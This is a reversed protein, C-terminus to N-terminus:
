FLLIDASTVSAKGQLDALLTLKGAAAGNADFWLTRDTTRFIFHDDADQARNDARVRFESAPLRGEDLGAGFGSADIRFLDDDRFDTIVDGGESPRLFLFADDGAGGTLSDKGPGGQLRDDGAGGILIDRGDMGKLLNSSGNGTIRNGLANGTGGIRGAGTLLLNEIEAPLTVAVSSRVQDTGGGRAEVVADRADGLLYLDDGAGGDLRDTGTGGDLIDAGGGGILVDDAGAGSLADGGAGGVLTNARDDGSLVETGLDAVAIVFTRLTAGGRGDEVLVQVQHSAQQEFDLRLGDAVVIRAGSLAFRGDAGDVLRYTLADGDADGAALVGAVTGAGAAEVVPGGDLNPTGPADNVAAVTLRFTAQATLAGDFAVVRLDIAGTWNAPPTGSFRRAAADFGMWAPLAAGDSLSAAYALADGDIDSFAPVTFSWATDEAVGQNALIPAVPAHNEVMVAGPNWGQALNDSTLAAAVTGELVLVTRWHVGTGTPDVRLEAQPGSQVWLLCGTLFPNAGAAHNELEAVLDALDIVDGGAGATFDTIRDAPDAFILEIQNDTELDWGWDRTWGWALHYTDRGAGGTFLEGAADADSVEWFHDAGAEGWLRDVGAGGYLHDAGDGGVLTDAGAGGRLLDDGGQAQLIDAGGTGELHRGKRLPTWPPTFNDATLDAIGLGELMLLATWVRSSAGGTAVMLEAGADTQFLALRDSGLLDTGLTLTLDILDILDGGAGASFDTVHDAVPVDNGMWTWVLGYADRGAGGTLVDAAVDQSVARFRDDGAGGSLRDLGLGGFLSDNGDGGDLTDNGDQGDLWDAGTGGAIIDNGYGGWISDNGTLGSIDDDNPTGALTDNILSLTRDGLITDGLGTPSWIPSFNAGTLDSAQIGDLVLLPQWNSGTGWADVQLEADAGVQVWRLYGVLFPNDANQHGVFQTLLNSLDIMDGGAGTTFGAVRDAINGAGRTWDIVFSERGAGGTLLDLSGDSSVGHHQIQVTM